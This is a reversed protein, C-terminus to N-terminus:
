ENEVEVVDEPADSKSERPILDYKKAYYRFPITVVTIGVLCHIGYHVLFNSADVVYQTIAPLKAGM